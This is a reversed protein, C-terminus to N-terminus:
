PNPPSPPISTTRPSNSSSRSTRAALPLDERHITLDLGIQWHGGAAQQPQPQHVGGIGAEVSQGEIAMGEVQDGGIAPRDRRRDLELLQQQSGTLPGIHQDLGVAGRPAVAQLGKGVVPEGTAHAHHKQDVVVDVFM